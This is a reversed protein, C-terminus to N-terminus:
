SLVKISPSLDLGFQLSNEIVFPLSRKMNGNRYQSSRCIRPKTINAILHMVGLDASRLPIKLLFFDLPNEQHTANKTHPIRDEGRRRDYYKPLSKSRGLYVENPRTYRLYKKLVERHIMM